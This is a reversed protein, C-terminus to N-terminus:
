ATGEAPAFHVEGDANTEPRKGKGYRLATVSVANATSLNPVTVVPRVYRELPYRVEIFAFGDTAVATAFSKATDELDAATAYNSASDQQAKISFTAIEGKAAQVFFVVGEYGLMDVGSGNLTENDADAKIVQPDPQMDDFITHFLLAPM